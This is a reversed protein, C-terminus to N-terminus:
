SLHSVKMEAGNVPAADAQPEAAMQGILSVSDVSLSVSLM